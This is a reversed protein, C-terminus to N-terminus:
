NIHNMLQCNKCIEQKAPEGCNVCYKVITDSSYYKKLKPLMKLYNGILNKKFGPFLMEVQNLFDRVHSRFSQTEYPCENFGSILGNLFSYALVEKETCFYLPKIRPIFKKDKIIGSFPGLRANINVQNRMVNMLVAQAEDDLNHGTAIKDYGRSNKNLLYRRFTGCVTCPNLEPYRKMITDLTKKYKSKFSIIKFKIKNKKCFRKLDKLTYERYGKIGEDIALANIKYGLRKLVFMLTTSDKGGSTAVILKDKKDILKFKKITSEVKKEFYKLFHKECYSPESFIATSNCKSCKM